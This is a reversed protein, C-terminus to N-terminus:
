KTTLFKHEPEVLPIKSVDDIAVTSKCQTSEAFITVVVCAAYAFVLTPV